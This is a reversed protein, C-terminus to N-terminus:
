AGRDRYEGRRRIRGLRALKPWRKPLNAGFNAALGRAPHKRGRLGRARRRDGTLINAYRFVVGDSPRVEEQAPEVYRMLSSLDAHRLIKALAPLSEGALAFRTAFTHRMDYLRCEVGYGGEYKGEKNKKGGSDRASTGQSAHHAPRRSRWGRNITM